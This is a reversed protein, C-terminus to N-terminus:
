MEGKKALASITIRRLAENVEKICESVIEEVEDPQFNFTYTMDEKLDAIVNSTEQIIPLLTAYAYMKAVEKNTM